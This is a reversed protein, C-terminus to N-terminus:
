VCHLNLTHMLSAFSYFGALSSDLMMYMKTDLMQACTKITKQIGLM